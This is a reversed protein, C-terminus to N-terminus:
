LNEDLKTRVESIGSEIEEIDTEFGLESEEESILVYTDYNQLADIGTALETLATDISDAQWDLEEASSPMRSVGIYVLALVAATALATVVPRNLIRRGLPMVRARGSDVAQDIAQLFFADDVQVDGSEAYRELTREIESKHARCAACSQVHQEWDRQEHAPLEGSLLLWVKQEFAACTKKESNKM